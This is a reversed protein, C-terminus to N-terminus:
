EREYWEFRESMFDCDDTINTLEAWRSSLLKSYDSYVLESVRVYHAPFTASTWHVLSACGAAVVSASHLGFGSICLRRYFPGSSRKGAHMAVIQRVLRQVIAVTIGAPSSGLM